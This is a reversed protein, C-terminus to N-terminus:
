NHLCLYGFRALGNCALCFVSLGGNACGDTFKVAGGFFPNDVPVVSSAAFRAQHLLEISYLLQEREISQGWKFRNEKERSLM